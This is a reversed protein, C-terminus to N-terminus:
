KKIATAAIKGSGFLRAAISYPLAVVWFFVRSNFILRLNEGTMFNLGGIFGAPYIESRIEVVEFGNKELMRRLTSKDFLTVHRPVELSGWNKGFLMYEWSGIDPTDVVLIGGKRLIRHVKGLAKSPYPVHEIVQKMTIVDFKGQGAIEAKEFTSNIVNLGLYRAKEAAFKSPEIGTVEWGNSKMGYIYTGSSCGIDLLKGKELRELEWIDEGFVMRIFLKWAPRVTSVIVKVIGTKENPPAISYHAYSDAGYLLMLNRPRPSLYVLGCKRCKVLSYEKETKILFDMAKLFPRADRSECLNCPIEEMEM